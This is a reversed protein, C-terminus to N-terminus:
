TSEPTPPRPTGEMQAIRWVKDHKEKRDRKRATAEKAADKKKKVVEDRLCNAQRAEPIPPKSVYGKHSLGQLRSQILLLLCPFFCCLISM